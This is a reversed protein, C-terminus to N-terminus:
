FFNDITLIVKKDVESLTKRLGLNSNNNSRTNADTTTSSSSNNLVMESQTRYFLTKKYHEDLSGASTAPAAISFSRSKMMLSQSSHKSPSDLRRNKGGFNNEDPSPSRKRKSNQAPSFLTRRTPLISRPYSLTSTSISKTLKSTGALPSTFLARKSSSISPEPKAIQLQQQRKASKPTKKKGPTKRKGPTKKKASNKRRRQYLKRLSVFIM